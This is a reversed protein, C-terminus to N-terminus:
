CVKLYYEQLSTIAVNIRNIDDYTSLSKIVFSMAAEKLPDVFRRIVIIETNIEQLYLLCVCASNQSEYEPSKM